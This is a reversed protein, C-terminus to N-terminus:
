EADPIAWARGESLRRQSPQALRQLFFTPRTREDAVKVKGCERCAFRFQTGNERSPIPNIRQLNM